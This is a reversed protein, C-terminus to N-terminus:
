RIADRETLPLAFGQFGETGDKYNLILMIDVFSFTYNDTIFSHLLIIIMWLMFDRIFLFIIM